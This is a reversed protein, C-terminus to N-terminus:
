ESEMIELIKGSTRDPVVLWLRRLYRPSLGELTRRMLKVFRPKQFSGHKTGLMPMAISKLKRREAERFIKDLARAIWEERWSPEENLDHVIALFRFPARGKVVVNGPTEPQTGIVRTMLKMPHEGPDRVALDASMVLFTDEEFAVADVSFPATGEPTAVIRVPGVSTESRQGGQILRLEAGDGAM